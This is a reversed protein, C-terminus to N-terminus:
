GKWKWPTRNTRETSWQWYSNVKGQLFGKPECRMGALFNEGCKIHLFHLAQTEPRSNPVRTSYTWDRRFTALLHLTDIHFPLVLLQRTGCLFLKGAILLLPIIIGSNLCVKSIYRVSSAPVIQFDLFINTMLPNFISFAQTVLM